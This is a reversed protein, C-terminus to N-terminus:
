QKLVLCFLNCINSGKSHITNLLITQFNITIETQPTDTLERLISPLEYWVDKVHKCEYLTHIISDEYECFNCISSSKVRWRYLERNTPLRKHLLRFQFDRLKTSITVAKCDMFSKKLQKKSIEEALHANWANITDWLQNPNFTLERYVKSTIKTSKKLLNFKHEYQEEDLEHNNIINKWKQPIARLLTEYELWNVATPFKENLEDWSMIKMESNLLDKCCILGRKIASTMCLM